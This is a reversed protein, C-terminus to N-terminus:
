LIWRLRWRCGGNWKKKNIFFTSRQERPPRNNYFFPIVRRALQDACPDPIDPFSWWFLGATLKLGGLREKKSPEVIFAM